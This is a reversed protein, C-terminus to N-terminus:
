TAKKECAESFQRPGNIVSSALSGQMRGPPERKSKISSVPRYLLSCLAEKIKKDSINISGPKSREERENKGSVGPLKEIGSVAM